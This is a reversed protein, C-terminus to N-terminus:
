GGCMFYTATYGQSVSINLNMANQQTDYFHVSKSWNYSERKDV